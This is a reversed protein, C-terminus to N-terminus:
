TCSGLRDLGRYVEITLQSDNRVEKRLYTRAVLEILDPDRARNCGVIVRYFVERPETALPDQKVTVSVFLIGSDEPLLMLRKEMRRATEAEPQSVLFVTKM